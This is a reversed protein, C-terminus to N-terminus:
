EVVKASAIDPVEAEGRLKRLPLVICPSWTVFRMALTFCPLIIGLWYIPMIKGDANWYSPNPRHKLIIAGWLGQHVVGFALGLVGLWSFVARFEAWSMSKAIESSSSVCLVAFLMYSVIGMVFYLQGKYGDDLHSVSIARAIGHATAFFFALVGLEKRMALWSGFVSGFPRSVSGRVLQMISAIPGALFTLAFLTMSTEGTSAMFSSLPYKSWPRSPTGRRGHIVYTSLTSYLLWWLFVIISLYVAKRWTPFLRHPHHELERATSLDGNHVPIMGMRTVVASIMNLADPNSCAIHVVPMSAKTVGKTDVDYSSLTNFAKVVTVEKPAIKQLGEASSVDDPGHPRSLPSNSIDVLVAGRAMGSAIRAVVESYAHRPIALFVVAAGAAADEFSAGTVEARRSGVTVQFQGSSKLRNELARGYLGTGLVAIRTQSGLFISTEDGESGTTQSTTVPEM